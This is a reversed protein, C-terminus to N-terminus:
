SSHYIIKIEMASLVDFFTSYQEYQRAAHQIPLELVLVIAFVPACNLLIVSNNIVAVLVRM